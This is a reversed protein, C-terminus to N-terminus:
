KKKEMQWVSKLVANHIWNLAHTHTKTNYRSSDTIVMWRVITAMWRIISSSAVRRIIARSSSAVRGIIIIIPRCSSHYGSFPNWIFITSMFYNRLFYDNSYKENSLIQAISSCRASKKKEKVYFASIFLKNGIPHHKISSSFHDMNSQYLWLCNRERNRTYSLIDSM